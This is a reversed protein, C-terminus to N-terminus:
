WPEEAAACSRRAPDGENDQCRWREDAPPAPAGPPLRRWKGCSDCAVWTTEHLPVEKERNRKKGRRGRSSRDEGGSTRESWSVGRAAIVDAVVQPPVWGKYWDTVSKALPAAVLTTLSPLTLECGGIIHHMLPKPLPLQGNSAEHAVPQEFKVNFSFCPLRGEDAVHLAQETIGVAFSTGVFVLAKASALWRRAKRYQYFAHSEYEEDFLLAQPLSPASCAPCRPLTGVVTTPGPAAAVDAADGGGGQVEALRHAAGDPAAVASPEGGGPQAALAGEADAVALDLPDGEISEAHAYRCGPTVCKFLGCRGHVEILKDAPLGSRLHLNDINQTIVRINAHPQAALAAIAFHGESPEYTRELMSGPEAVVHAPIWFKDYWARPDALFAHRTGWELVWKAWVGNEGRFTPIGSPASLGSGTVFVVPEGRRIMRALELLAPESAPPAM